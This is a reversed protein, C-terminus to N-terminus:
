LLGSDVQNPSKKLCCNNKERFIMSESFLNQLNSDDGCIAVRNRKWFSFFLKKFKKQKWSSISM